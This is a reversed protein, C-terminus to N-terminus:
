ISVRKCQLRNRKKTHIFDFTSWNRESDSASSIQALVRVAVKQLEPVHAGFSLWWRFPPMKKASASAVPRSFLGHGARYTSHQEIAKVQAQMDDPFTREVVAHFGSMVEENEHQLFLRYDPDLVFGASHLDTHLMTWRARIRNRIQTKKSTELGSNEVGDIQFMKWYIKGVCPVNGDVLRLCKIIPDCVSLLEEVAKWFREDMVAQTVSTGEDRMTAKKCSGLWQKYHRDVVTEQLEAKTDLVRQLMILSSAFRTEGPRLLEVTSHERFIALSKQHNAIFKVINHGKHITESSWPLKGIDELLLDICHASCPSFVISPFDAALAARAAACNRVLPM